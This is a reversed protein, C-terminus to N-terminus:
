ATLRERALVWQLVRELDGNEAALDYADRIRYLRGRVRQRAWGLRRLRYAEDEIMKQTAHRRRNETM